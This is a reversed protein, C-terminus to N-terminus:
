APIQIVEQEESFGTLIAAGAAAGLTKLLQRRTIPM